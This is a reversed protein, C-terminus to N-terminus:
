AKDQSSKLMPMQSDGRLIGAQCICMFHNGFRRFISPSNRHRRAPKSTSKRSQNVELHASAFTFWALDRMPDQNWQITQPLYSMRWFNFLFVNLLNASHEQCISAHRIASHLHSQNTVPINRRIDGFSTQAFPYFAITIFMKSTKFNMKRKGHTNHLEETTHKCASIAPAWPLTHPLSM